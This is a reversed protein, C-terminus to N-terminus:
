RSYDDEIREVDELYNTSVEVLDVDTGMTACFRHVMLPSIHFSDGPQLVASKLQGDRTSSYVIELVGSLVKITEEKQNHLQLSLRHGEKIHLIKGVYDKTQAWIEEHGWPKEIRKKM